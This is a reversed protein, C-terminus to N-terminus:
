VTRRPVDGLVSYLTVQKGPRDGVPESEKGLVDGVEHPEARLVQRRATVMGADEDRERRPGRPPRGADAAEDGRDTRESVLLEVVPDDVKPPDVLDSSPSIL